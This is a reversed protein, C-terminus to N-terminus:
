ASVVTLMLNAPLGMFRNVQVNLSPLAHWPDLPRVALWHQRLALRGMHKLAGIGEVLNLRSEEAFHSLGLARLSSRHAAKPLWHLLPLLTHFEIPHWRYPTTIFAGRRAVRLCESIFTIQRSVDGVHEIVANAHVLDFQGTEFPLACGDAQVYPVAPMNPRQASMMITPGADIGCCTLLLRPAPRIGVLARETPRLWRLLLNSSGLEPLPSAGVDLISEGDVPQMLQDMHRLMDTRARGVLMDVLGGRNGRTVEGAIHIQHAM